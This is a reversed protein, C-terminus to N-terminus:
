QQEPPDEGIAAAGGLTLHQVPGSLHRLAVGRFPRGRRELALEPRAEPLEGVIGFLRPLAADPRQVALRDRCADALIADVDDRKARGALQRDLRGLLRTFAARLASTTIQPAPM